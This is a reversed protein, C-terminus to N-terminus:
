PTSVALYAEAEALFAAVDALHPALRTHVVADPFDWWATALLRAITGEDFRYRVVRAPNGAVIAYAPVSKAVVAGAAVIAGHDIHVGGLVTAYDAVWVDAGISPAGKLQQNRPASDCLGFEKFPFLSAFGPNHDGDVVFTAKGLSSYPGVRITQPSRYSHIRLDDNAYSNRGLELASWWQPLVLKDVRGRLTRTFRLIPNGYPFQRVIHGSASPRARSSPQLRQM